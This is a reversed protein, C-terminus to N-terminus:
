KLIKRIADLRTTDPILSGNEKHLLLGDEGLRGTPVLWGGEDNENWAYILLANAECNEKHEQIYDMTEEIHSAIEDPTATQVWSEAAVNMWSVPRDHRPRPDWGATSMPILKQGRTVADEWRSYTKQTLATFSEGNTGSFGYGSVADFYQAKEEHRNWFMAAIYPQPVKAEKCAARLATIDEPTHEQYSFFFVLPRDGCVKMYYPQQFYHVLDGLHKQINYSGATLIASMKVKKNLASCTHFQRAYEMGSNDEYMCYAFYDIGADAAYHMEEDFLGQTPAPFSVTVGDEELKAFYPVRFHYKLQSLTDSVQQGVNRPIDATAPHNGPFWADWRIAGIFPKEKKM